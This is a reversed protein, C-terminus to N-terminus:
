VDDVASAALEDIFPDVLVAYSGTDTVPGRSRREDAIPPIAPRTTM